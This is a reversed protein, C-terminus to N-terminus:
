RGRSINEIFCPTPSNTRFKRLLKIQFKDFSYEVTFVKQKVHSFNQKHNAIRTRFQYCYRETTKIWSFVFKIVNIQKFYLTIIAGHSRLRLQSVLVCFSSESVLLICRKNTFFVMPGDKHNSSVKIPFKHRVSLVQETNEAPVVTGIVIQTIGQQSPCREHSPM